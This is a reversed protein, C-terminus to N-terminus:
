SLGDPFVLLEDSLPPSLEIFIEESFSGGVKELAFPVESFEDVVVLLVASLEVSLMDLLIGFTGVSLMSFEASVFVSIEVVLLQSFDDSLM